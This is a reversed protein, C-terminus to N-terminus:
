RKQTLSGATGQGHAERVQREKVDLHSFGERCLCVPDINESAEM